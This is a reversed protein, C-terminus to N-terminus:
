IFSKRLYSNVGNCCFPGACRVLETRRTRSTRATKRSVARRCRDSRVRLLGSFGLNTPRRGTIMNEHRPSDQDFLRLAKCCPMQESRRRCRSVGALGLHRGGMGKAEAAGEMMDAAWGWCGTPGDSAARVCNQLACALVRQFRRRPKRLHERWSHGGNRSRVVIVRVGPWSSRLPHRM